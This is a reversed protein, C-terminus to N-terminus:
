QNGYKEGHTEPLRYDPQRLKYYNVNNVDSMRSAIRAMIPDGQTLANLSMNSTMVVPFEDPFRYRNNIIAALQDEVFNSKHELGWDDFLLIPVTSLRTVFDDLTVRDGGETVTQFNLARFCESAFREASIYFAIQPLATKISQLIHTKGTGRTGEIWMWLRPREIWKNVFDLLERLDQAGEKNGFPHLDKLYTPPIPTEYMQCDNKHQELWEELKCICYVLRGEKDVVTEAGDNFPCEPGSHKKWEGIPSPFTYGYREKLM